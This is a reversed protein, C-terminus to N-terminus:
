TLIVEHGTMGLPDHDTMGPITEHGSMGVITEHGTMSAHGKLSDYRTNGIHGVMGLM